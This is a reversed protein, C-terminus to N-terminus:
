GNESGSTSRRNMKRRCGCDCAPAKGGVIRQHSDARVALDDLAHISLEILPDLANIAQVTKFYGKVARDNASGFLKKAIAGFM